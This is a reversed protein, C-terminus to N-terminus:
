KRANANNQNSTVYNPQIRLLIVEQLHNIGNHRTNKSIVLIQVSRITYIKAPIKTYIQVCATINCFALYTYYDILYKQKGGKLIPFGFSNTYKM